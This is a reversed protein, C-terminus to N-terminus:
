NLNMATRVGWGLREFRIEPTQGYTVALDVGGAVPLTVGIVYRADESVLFSVAGAIDSARGSGIPMDWEDTIYTSGGGARRDDSAPIIAGPAVANVRVGERAVEFALDRTFASVGAKSASYSAHPVTYHEAAISSINVIAGSGRELMGPLVATSCIYTGTLNVSIVRDWDEDTHDVVSKVIWIGACNVLVDVRGYVEITRAVIAAVAERDRVDAAEPTVIGGTKAAIAAARSSVAEANLDLAIVAYGESSLREAIGAGINNAAGTIIAVKAESM